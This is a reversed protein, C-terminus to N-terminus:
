TTLPIHLATRSNGPSRSDQICSKVSGKLPPDLIKRLPPSVVALSLPTYGRGRLASVM